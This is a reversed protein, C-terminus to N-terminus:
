SQSSGPLASDRVVQSKERLVRFFREIGKWVDTGGSLGRWESRILGVLRFCEDIPALYHECEQQAPQVRGLRNVLLAEVDNEMMGVIPNEAVIDNWGKLDLLSETAGAPSPYMAVTRAQPTSHYFFAINIPILLSDWQADSLSFAPLYRVRKPIRRYKADTGITLGMLCADCACAIRRSGPEILHAHDAALPERCIECREAREQRTAFRRLTAFSRNLTPESLTM